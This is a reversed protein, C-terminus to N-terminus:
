KAGGGRLKALQAEYPQALAAQGAEKFRAIGREYMKMCYPSPSNFRKQPVTPLFGQYFQALLAASDKLGKAIEEMKDLM